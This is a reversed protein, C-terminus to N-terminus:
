QGNWGAIRALLWWFARAKLNCNLPESHACDCCSECLSSGPNAACWEVAWNAQGSGNDYFCGDDAYYELYPTGDPDYSEIDAFDFLVKNNEKCYQRIQENRRHLNGSGGTGDLHGTMYVFTVQPYESELQQMTDLYMQIGNQTNDSVGGCWSWVVVNRDSGSSNLVTRTRDAWTMDGQDGLDGDPAYDDISLSNAIVSGDTNFRYLANTNELVQMGTIPQSGHSTHGYSLKLQKKVTDIWSEPIRSVDTHDHNIIIAESTQAGTISLLGADSWPASGNDNWAKVYWTYDGEPLDLGPIIGCVGSTCSVHPYELTNDQIEYWQSFKVSKSENSLYVKYWTADADANWSFEPNSNESNGLPSVLVVKQALVAGTQVSFDLGNSWTSGQENWSKIFWEYTGSTLTIDPTVTCFTESCINSAEYWHAYTKQQSSDRIFLRYWTSCADAAWTYATQGSSEVSDPSTLNVRGPLNTCAQTAGQSRVCRVYYDLSKDRGSAFGDEFDIGWVHQPAGAMTSSSIYLDTNTNPFYVSDIAPKYQTADLISLLERINPLRWDQATALSLTECYDCAEQWDRQVNDTAQQWVLSTHHDIVTGDGNDTFSAPTNTVTDDRVCRVAGSGTKGGWSDNGWYQFEILWANDDSLQSGTWYDFTTQPFYSTNIAPLYRTYDLITALEQKTPIRWSSSQGLVLADCYQCASEWNRLAADDQKQWVYGTNQDTITGDGNDVFAPAPGQQYQADQGYFDDESDPCTMTTILDYCTSIGTDPLVFGTSAALAQSSFILVWIVVFGWMLYGSINKSKM